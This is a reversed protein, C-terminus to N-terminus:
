VKTTKDDKYQAALKDLTNLLMSQLDENSEQINTKAIETKSPKNSDQNLLKEIDVNSNPEFQFTEKAWKRIIEDVKLLDADPLNNDSKSKVIDPTKTPLEKKHVNWKSLPPVTGRIVPPLPPWTPRPTTINLHVQTKNRSTDVTIKHVSLVLGQPQIGGYIIVM